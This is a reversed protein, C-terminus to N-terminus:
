KKWEPKFDKLYASIKELLEPNAVAMKQESNWAITTVNEALIEEPHLLYMTNRGVMDLFGATRGPEPGRPTGDGGVVTWVGKDNPRVEFLETRANELFGPRKPDWGEVASYNVLIMTRTTGKDNVDVAWRFDFADPNTIRRRDLFPGLDLNPLRRFGILGFIEDHRHAHARSFVHWTEHIMVRSFIAGGIFTGGMALQPEPIAIWDVRTYWANSAERGSTKLFRWDAPMIVPVTAMAARHARTLTSRMTEREEDTWERCEGQLFGLFARVNADRQAPDLDRRLVQEMETNTLADFYGDDNRAIERRAEELTYLFVRTEGILFDPERAAGCPPSLLLLLLTAFLRLSGM